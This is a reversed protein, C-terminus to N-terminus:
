IEVEKKLQASPAYRKSIIELISLLDLINKLGIKKSWEFPGYPYNTGLMMATDIEQKTSIDEELTFYGENIIMSIIRATIFGPEDPVWEVKRNFCSLMKEALDKRDEGTTSAEIVSRKLFTPWANIRVFSNDIQRLTKTVSNIIVLGSTLKKLLEIRSSTPEFLLDIWADANPYNEFDTIQEIWIPTTHELIGHALLEEKSAVEALVVIQM